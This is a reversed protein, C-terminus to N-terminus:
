YENNFEVILPDVDKRIGTFSWYFQYQGTKNTKVIFKNNEIDLEDVWIIEGHKINTLQVQAGLNSVLNSIYDPLKIECIGGEICSEGTLRIGHYPSELSGYVLRKSPDLPHTINFSKTRAHLDGSIGVGGTVVLTGTTISTSPINDPLLIGAPPKTEAILPDTLTSSSLTLTGFLQNSGWLHSMISPPAVGGTVLDNVYEKTAADTLEQPYAVNTIRAGSVHITGTGMPDLVINQDIETSSIINGGITLNQITTEGWVDGGSLPLYESQLYEIIASQTPVTYADHTGNSAILLNNSSVERLQVGVMVGNRILPGIPGINRLDTYMWNPTFTNTLQNIEFMNGVKYIGTETQSTYFVNGGDEELVHNDTTPEANAVLIANYTVGNGVFNFLHNNATIKSNEYLVVISNAAVFNTPAVMTIVSTGANLSSASKIQYTSGSVTLTNSAAPTKTLGSVILQSIPEFQVTATAVDAPDLDGLGGGEITITPIQFYGTGVRTLQLSLVRDEGIIATFGATAGIHELLLTGTGNWDYNSTHTPPPNGSIGEELVKYYNVDYQIIENLAYFTDPQWEIATNYPPDVTVTPESIYLYGASTLDAGIITGPVGVSVVGEDYVTTNKGTALLGVNGYSSSCSNLLLTGGTQAQYSVTCFKTDSSTIQATVEGSSLVGIGGQAIVSTHEIIALRELSNNSVDAGNIFIGGGGGIPNLQKDLPIAPNDIIPYKGPPINQIQVTKYPVFLTGDNLFPGTKVTCHRIVPADKIIIGAALRFAFGPAAHNSVCIDEIITGSNIYFVDSTPVRPTVIVNSDQGTITVDPPCIIPNRELYTGSCIIVTSGANAVSLAATITLKTSLLSKGDNTDNGSKSVYITNKIPKNLNLKDQTIWSLTGTIDGILVSNDSVPTPLYAQIAQNPKNSLLRPM